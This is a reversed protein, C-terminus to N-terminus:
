LVGNQEGEQLLDFRRFIMRNSLLEYFVNENRQFLTLRRYVCNKEQIKTHLHAFEVGRGGVLRVDEADVTAYDLSREPRERTPALHLLTM